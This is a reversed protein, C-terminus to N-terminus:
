RNKSCRMLGHNTLHERTKPLIQHHSKDLLDEESRNSLDKELEKLNSIFVRVEQNPKQKAQWYKNYIGQDHLELKSLVERYFKIFNDFSWEELPNEKLGNM